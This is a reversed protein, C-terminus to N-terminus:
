REREAQRFHADLEREIRDRFADDSENKAEVACQYAWDNDELSEAHLQQIYDIVGLTELFDVMKDHDYDGNVQCVQSQLWIAFPNNM